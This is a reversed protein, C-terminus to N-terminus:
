RQVVIRDQNKDVVSPPSSSSSSTFSIPQVFEPPVQIVSQKQIVIVILMLFVMRIRSFHSCCERLLNLRYVLCFVFLYPSVQVFQPFVCALLAVWDFHVRLVWIAPIELLGKQYVSSWQWQHVSLGSFHVSILFFGFDEYVTQFQFEPEVLVVIIVFLTLLYALRMALYELSSPM